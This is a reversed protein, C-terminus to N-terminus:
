APFGTFVYGKGRVAKIVLPHDPDPEIKRRLRVILSDLGRDYPQWQRDFVQRCLENRSQPEGEHAVLQAFLECEATSLEITRGDPAYVNRRISDFRWGHTDAARVPLVPVTAARRLLSRMRALLERLNVPKFLYDAAGFELGVIKDTLDDQATMMICPMDQGGRVERLLDFGNEGGLWLDLLLLDFRKLGLRHRAGLIDSAGEARVGHATLYDCLEERLNRDDDVVLVIAGSLNHTEEM